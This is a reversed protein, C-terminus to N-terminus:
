RAINIADNKVIVPDFVTGSIYIASSYYRNALPTLHLLETMVAGAEIGMITVRTPDGGFPRIYNRVFKLAEFADWVGYNGPADSTGTTFFGFPGQRYNVQVVIVSKSVFNDGLAGNDYDSFGGDNFGGSSFWVLVALCCKPSSPTLIKMYLCDEGSEDNLTKGDLGWRACQPRYSSSDFVGSFGRLPQPREFRRPPTQAYPVSLYAYMKFNMPTTINTGRFRGLGTSVIQCYSKKFLFVPILVLAKLVLM